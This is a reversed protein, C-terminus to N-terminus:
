VASTSAHQSAHFASTAMGCLIVEIAELSHVFVTMADPWQYLEEAEQFCLSQPQLVALHDEAPRSAFNVAATTLVTLLSSCSM